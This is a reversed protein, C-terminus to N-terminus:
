DSAKLQRLLEALGEKNMSHEALAIMASVTPADDECCDVYQASAVDIYPRSIPFFSLFSRAPPLTPTRAHM